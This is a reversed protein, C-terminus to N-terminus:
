VQMRWGATTNDRRSAAWAEGGASAAGLDARGADDGDDVMLGDDQQRRREKQWRDRRLPSLPISNIGDRPVAGTRSTHVRAGEKAWWGKGLGGDEM